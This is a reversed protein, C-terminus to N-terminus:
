QAVPTSEFAGGSRLRLIRKGLPATKLARECLHAIGEVTSRGAPLPVLVVRCDVKDRAEFSSLTRALVTAALADVSKANSHGTAIIAFTADDLRALPEGPQLCDALAAGWRLVSAEFAERGRQQAAEETGALRVWLLAAIQGRARLALIQRALENGFAERNPLGTAADVLASARRPVPGIKGFRHSVFLGYVLLLTGLAYGAPAIVSGSSGPIVAGVELATLVICTAYLGLCLSLWPGLRERRVLVVRCLWAAAGLVLLSLVAGVVVRGEAPLWLPTAFGMCLVLAGLALCGWWALPDTSRLGACAAFAPLMTSLILMTSIFKSQERWWPSADRWLLLDGYGHYALEGLAFFCLQLAM